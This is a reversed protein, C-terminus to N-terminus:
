PRRGSHNEQVTHVIEKDPDVDKLICSVFDECPVSGSFGGKEKGQTIVQNGPERGRNADKKDGLRLRVGGNYGTTSHIVYDQIFNRDHVLDDGAISHSRLSHGVKFTTSRKISCTVNILDERHLVSHLEPIM